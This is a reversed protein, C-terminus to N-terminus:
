FIVMKTRIPEYKKGFNSKVEVGIDKEDLDNNVFKIRLDSYIHQFFLKHNIEYKPMNKYKNKSIKLLSKTNPLYWQVCHALEHALVCNLYIKWDSTRITGIVKDLSYSDYERFGKIEYHRVHHLTLNVYPVVVNNEYITGGYHTQRYKSYDFVVRINWNNGLDYKSYCYTKIETIKDIIHNNIKSKEITM